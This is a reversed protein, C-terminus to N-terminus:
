RFFRWGAGAATRRRIRRPWTRPWRPSRGSVPRRTSTRVSAAWSAATPICVVSSSPPAAPSFPPSRHGSIPGSRTCSVRPCSAWSPTARSAWPSAGASSQGTAASGASGSRGRSPRSPLPARARLGVPGTYPGPRRVRPTRPLVRRHRIGGGAARRDRGDEAGRRPRARLRAGDFANTGTRWDQFTPYSAPRVNTASDQEAIMMVRDAPAWTFPRLIVSRLVSFVATTGGIGLALTLIVAITYGPTRGLTRLAHRLDRLM